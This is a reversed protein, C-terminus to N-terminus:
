KTGKQADLGAQILEAIVLSRASNTDVAIGNITQHLETPLTISVAQTRRKRGTLITRVPVIADDSQQDVDITM